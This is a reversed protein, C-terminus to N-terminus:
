RGCVERGSKRGCVAVGVRVSVFRGWELAWLGCLDTAGV